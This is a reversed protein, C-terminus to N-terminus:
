KTVSIKNIDIAFLAKIVNIIKEKVVANDGGESIVAVGEVLPAIRSLVYPTTKGSEDTVYVTQNDESYTYIKRTGGASDDEGTDEYSIDKETLVNKQESSKLTIMVYIEGAGDIQSLIEKLREEQVRVYEEWDITEESGEQVAERVSSGEDASDSSGEWVTCLVIVVGAIILLILKDRGINKIIDINIKM